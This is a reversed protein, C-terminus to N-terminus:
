PAAPATLDFDLTNDGAAAEFARSNYQLKRNKNVQPSRVTVRNDGALTKVTYAGDPGIKGVGPGASKRNVNSPDFNVEGGAMPKGDISIVGHVTAEADSSSVSPTGDGCGALAALTTLAATFHLGSRRRRM